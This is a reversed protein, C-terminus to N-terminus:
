IQIQKLIIDTLGIGKKSVEESLKQDYIDTYLRSQNNDLLNDKSLSSRMSKLLIQIFAGEVAQATQLAYKKPNSRVQYKLENVFKVNYNSINLLLLNDNM